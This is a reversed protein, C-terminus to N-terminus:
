NVEPGRRLSSHEEGRRMSRRSVRALRMERSEQMRRLEGAANTGGVGKEHGLGGGRNADLSGLHLAGGAAGGDAHAYQM